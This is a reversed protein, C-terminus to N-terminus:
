ESLIDTKKEQVHEREWLQGGKQKFAAVTRELEEEEGRGEGEGEGEGEGQKM